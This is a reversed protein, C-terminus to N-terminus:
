GELPTVVPGTPSSTVTFQGGCLGCSYRGEPAGRGVHVRVGCYPCLADIDPEAGQLPVKEDVIEWLPDHTKRTM